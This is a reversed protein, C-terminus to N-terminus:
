KGIYDSRQTAPSRRNLYVAALIIVALAAAAVGVANNAPAL